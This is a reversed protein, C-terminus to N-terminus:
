QAGRGAERQQEGFADALEFGAASSVRWARTGAVTVDSQRDAERDVRFFRGCNERASGYIRKTSATRRATRRSRRRAPRAATSHEPRKSADCPLANQPGGEADDHLLESARLFAVVVGRLRSPVSFWLITTVASVRTPCPKLRALLSIFRHGTLFLLRPPAQSSV